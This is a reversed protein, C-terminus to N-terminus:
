SQPWNKVCVADESTFNIISETTEYEFKINLLYGRVVTYKNSRDLTMGKFFDRVDEIKPCHWTNLWHRYKNSDSESKFIYYGEKIERKEDEM